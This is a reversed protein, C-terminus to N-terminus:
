HVRNIESNLGARVGLNSVHNYITVEIKM